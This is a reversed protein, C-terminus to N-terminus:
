EEEEEDNNDEVIDVVEPEKQPVVAPEKKQPPAVFKQIPSPDAPPKLHAYRKSLDYAPDDAINNILTIMSDVGNTKVVWSAIEAPTEQQLNTAVAYAREAADARM